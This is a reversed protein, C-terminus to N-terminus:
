QLQGTPKYNMRWDPGLRGVMLVGSLALLQDFEGM